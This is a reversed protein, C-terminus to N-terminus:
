DFSKSKQIISLIQVIVSGIVVFIFLVLLIPGVPHKKGKKVLSVPVNGRNTINNDFAYVKQTIKRSCPMSICFPYLNTFSMLFM